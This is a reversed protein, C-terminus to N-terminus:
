ILQNYVGVLQDSCIGRITDRYSSPKSHAYLNHTYFSRLTHQYKKCVASCFEEHMDAYYKSKKQTDVDTRHPMSNYALVLKDLRSLNTLSLLLGNRINDM